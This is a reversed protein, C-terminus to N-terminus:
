FPIGAVANIIPPPLPPYWPDAPPYPIGPVSFRFVPWLTIIIPHPTNLTKGLPM